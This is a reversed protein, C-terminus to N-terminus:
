SGMSAMHARLGRRYHADQMAHRVMTTEGRPTANGPRALPKAFKCREVTTGMLMELTHTWVDTRCRREGQIAKPLLYRPSDTQAISHVTFDGLNATSARYHTRLIKWNTTCIRGMPTEGAQANWTPGLSPKTSARHNPSPICHISVATIATASSPLTDHAVMEGYSSPTLVCTRRDDCRWPPFLLVVVLSLAPCSDSTLGCRKRASPVSEVLALLRTALPWHDTTLPGRSVSLVGHGGAPLPGMGRTAWPLPLWTAYVGVGVGLGIWSGCGKLASPSPRIPGAASGLIQKGSSSAPHRAYGVVLGDQPLFPMQVSATRRDRQESAPQESQPSFESLTAPDAAALCRLNQRARAFPRLGRPCWAPHRPQVWNGHYIQPFRLISDELSRWLQPEAAKPGRNATKGGPSSAVAWSRFTEGPALNRDFGAEVWALLCQSCCDILVTSSSSVARSSWILVKGARNTEAMGNSSGGEGGELPCVCCQLSGCAALVTEALQTHVACTAALGARM